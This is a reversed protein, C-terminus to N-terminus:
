SRVVQDVAGDVRQFFLDDFQCQGHANDADYKQKM